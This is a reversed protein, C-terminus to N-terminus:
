KVKKLLKADPHNTLYYEVADNFVVPLSVHRLVSILRMREVSSANLFVHCDLTNEDRSLRKMGAVKKAGGGSRVRKKASPKPEPKVEPVVSDGEVKNDDPSEVVPVPEQVSGAVGDKGEEPVTDRLILNEDFVKKTKHPVPMVLNKEAFIPLFEICTM